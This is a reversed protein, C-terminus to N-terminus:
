SKSSAVHSMHLRKSKCPRHVEGASVRVRFQPLLTAKSLQAALAAKDVYSLARHCTTERSGIQGPIHCAHLKLKNM